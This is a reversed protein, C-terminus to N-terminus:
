GGPPCPYLAAALGENGDGTHLLRSADVGRFWGARRGRAPTDRVARPVPGDDRVELEVVLEPTM